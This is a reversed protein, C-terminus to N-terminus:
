VGRFDKGGLFGKASRNPGEAALCGDQAQVRAEGVQFTRRVLRWAAYVHMNLMVLHLPVHVLLEVLVHKAELSCKESM